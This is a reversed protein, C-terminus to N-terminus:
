ASVLQGVLDVAGNDSIRPVLAHARNLMEGFVVAQGTRADALTQELGTAWGGTFRPAWHRGEEMRRGYWELQRVDTDLRAGLQAQGYVQDRLVDAARQLQQAQSAFAVSTRRVPWVGRTEDGQIRDHLKGVVEGTSRFQGYLDTLPQMQAAVDNDAATIQPRAGGTPAAVPRSPALNM